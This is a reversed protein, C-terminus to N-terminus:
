AYTSFSNTNLKASSDDTIQDALENWSHIISDIGSEEQIYGTREMGSLVIGFTYDSYKDTNKFFNNWYTSKGEYRFIGTVKNSQRKQVFQNQAYMAGGLLSQYFDGSNAYTTKVKDIVNYIAQRDIATLGRLVSSSLHDAKMQIENDIHKQAEDVAKSIFADTTRRVADKIKGSVNAYKNFMESKLAVESLQMGIEEETGFVNIKNSYGWSDFSYDDMQKIFAQTKELEDLTYSGDSKEAKETGTGKMSKRLESAMYASDNKLWEDKTGDINAYDKNSQIFASYDSVRADIGSLVSHYIDEKEASVGYEKFVGGVEDSFNRALREKTSDMIDDLQSMNSKQEEGSFNTAIYNKMVAYRSAIYDVSQKLTDSDRSNFDLEAHFFDVKPSLGNQELGAIFDAPPTSWALGSSALALKQLNKGELLDDISLAPSNQEEWAGRVADEKSYNDYGRILSETKLNASAWESGSSEKSFASPKGSEINKTKQRSSKSYLAPFSSSRQANVRM